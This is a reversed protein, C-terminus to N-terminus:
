RADTARAATRARLWSLLRRAHACVCVCVCVRARAGAAVIRKCSLRCIFSAGTHRRRARRAGCGGSVSARRGVLRATRQLARIRDGVSRADRLRDRRLVGKVCCVCVCVCWTLRNCHALSTRVRLAPAAIGAVPMGGAGLVAFVARRRRRRRRTPSRRCAAAPAATVLRPGPSQVYTPDPAAETGFVRCYQGGCVDAFLCVRARM